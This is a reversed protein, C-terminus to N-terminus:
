ELRWEWPVLYQRKAGVPWRWYRRVHNLTERDLTSSGSPVQVEVRAPRGAEDVEVLLQVVGHERRARAERPYQPKPFFGGEGMGGAGPHFIKSGGKRGADSDPGVRPLAVPYLRSGDAGGLNPGEVPSLRPRHFDLFPSPIALPVLREPMEQGAEAGDGAPEGSRSDDPSTFAGPVLVMLWDDVVPSLVLARPAQRGLLGTALVLACVAGTWAVHRGQDWGSEPLCARLLASHVPRAVGRLPDHSADSVVTKM